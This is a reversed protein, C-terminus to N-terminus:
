AVGHRWLRRSSAVPSGFPRLPGFGERWGVMEPQKDMHGYLLVCDDSESKSQGPIDIFLLPTRGELRAVEVKMGAIPQRRVWNEFRGVVREMYGHALWEKDFAVSKNPIRIYEILESVISSDWLGEVHSRISAKDM